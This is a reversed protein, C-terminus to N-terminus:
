RPYSKSILMSEYLSCNDAPQVSDAPARCQASEAKM